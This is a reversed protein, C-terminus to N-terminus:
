IRSIRDSHCGVARAYKHLTSISPSHKKNGCNDKAYQDMTEVLCTTQQMMSNKYDKNRIGNARCFNMAGKAVM